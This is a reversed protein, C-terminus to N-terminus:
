SGLVEFSANHSSRGFVVISAVTRVNGHLDISYAGGNALATQPYVIQTAGNAFKIAVESVTTRGSTSQLKLTRLNADGLSIKTRGNPAIRDSSSLVSWAPVRKWTREVVVPKPAEPERVEVIRQEQPAPQALAMSSSGAVVLTAILAKINM